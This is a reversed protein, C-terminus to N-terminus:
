EKEIGDGIGRFAVVGAKEAKQGVAHPRVLPMPKDHQRHAAVQNAM